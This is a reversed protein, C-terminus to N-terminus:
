AVPAGRGAVPQAPIPPVPRPQADQPGAILYIVMAAFGFSLLGCVLLVIFWTKDPLQATNIVAGIWAVFQGVVAGIMALLGVAALLILAWGGPTSRVGVVDPGDMVFNGHGEVLSMLAQVQQLVTRQQPSAFLGVVGGDDLPNRGARMEDVARALAAVFSRPDPDVVEFAQQVL